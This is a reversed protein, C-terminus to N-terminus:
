GQKKPEATKTVVARPPTDLRFQRDTPESGIVAAIAHYYGPLAWKTLNSCTSDSRRGSWTVKIATPEASRVVVSQRQIGKPCDQTTWIRDHGSTIKLVLNKRTIDFTCAAQTGTLLLRVAVRGGAYAQRIAPIVTIDAPACDGTPAAQAPAPTAKPTTTKRPSKKAKPRTTTVVTPGIFAPRAAATSAPASPQEKGALTATSAPQDNGGVLRSVGVVLLVAIALVMGRRFWYVRAPLRGRPRTVSSM